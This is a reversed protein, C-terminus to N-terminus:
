GLGLGLLFFHNLHVLSPGLLDLQAVLLLVLNGLVLRKKRLGLFGDIVVQVVHLLHVLHHEVGLDHGNSILLELFVLPELLLPDLLLLFEVEHHLDLSELDELFLLLSLDPLSLGSLLAGLDYDILNLLSGDLSHFLLLESILLLDLQLGINFFHSLFIFCGVLGLSLFDVQEHFLSGLGISLSQKFFLFTLLFLLVLVCSNSLVLAELVLLFEFLLLFGLSDSFLFFSFDLTESLELFLSRISLSFDISKPGLSGKLLALSLGSFSFLKLLGLSLADLSIELLGSLLLELLLGRGQSLLSANLSLVVHVLNLLLLLDLQLLSLDLLVSLLGEDIVGVLDPILNRGVLVDFLLVSKVEQLLTSLDSLFDVHLSFLDLADLLGFYLLELVDAYVVLVEVLEVLLGDGESRSASAGLPCPEPVVGWSCICTYIVFFKIRDVTPVSLDSFNRM